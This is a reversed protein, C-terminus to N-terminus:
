MSPGADSTFSLRQLTMLCKHESLASVAADPCCNSIPFASLQGLLDPNTGPREKGSLDPLCRTLCQASAEKSIRQM